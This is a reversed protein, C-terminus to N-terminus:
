MAPTVAGAPLFIPWAPAITDPPLPVACPFISARRAAPTCTPSLGVSAPSSIAPMTASSQGASGFFRERNPLNQPEARPADARLGLLPPGTAVVPRRGLATLWMGIARDLDITVMSVGNSAKASAPRRLLLGAGADARCRADLGDTEILPWPRGDPRMQGSALLFAVIGM